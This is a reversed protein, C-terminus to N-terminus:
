LTITQENVNWGSITLSISNEPNCTFTLTQHPQLTVLNDSWFGPVIEGDADKLDMRVFFAVVDSKNELTVQDGKVSVTVEATALDDLAHFTQRTYQRRHLTRIYAGARVSSYTRTRHRRDPAAQLLQQSLM